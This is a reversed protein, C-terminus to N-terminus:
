RFLVFAFCIAVAVFLFGFFAFAFPLTRALCNTLQKTSWRYILPLRCNLASITGWSVVIASALQGVSSSGLALQLCYLIHIICNLAIWNSRNEAVQPMLLFIFNKRSGSEFVQCSFKFKTKIDIIIDIPMYIEEGRREERMWWLRRNLANVPPFFDLANSANSRCTHLKYKIPLM